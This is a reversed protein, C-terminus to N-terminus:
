FALPNKQVGPPWLTFIILLSWNKKPPPPLKQSNLFEQPIGSFNRHLSTKMTTTRGRKGRWCYWFAGSVDRRRVCWSVWKPIFSEWVGKTMMRAVSLCSSVSHFDLSLQNPVAPLCFHGEWPSIAHDADMGLSTSRAQSSERASSCWWKSWYHKRAHNQGM